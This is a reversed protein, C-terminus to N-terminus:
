LNIKHIVQNLEEQQAKLRRQMEHLQPKAKDIYQEKMSVDMERALIQNSKQKLETEVVAKKKNVEAIIEAKASELMKNWKRKDLKRGLFNGVGFIFVVVGAWMLGLKWVANSVLDEAKNEYEKGQAEMENFFDNRQRTIEDSVFKRTNKHEQAIVQATGTDVDEPVAQGLVIPILVMSMILILM